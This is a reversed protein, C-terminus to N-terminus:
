LTKAFAEIDAPGNLATGTLEPEIRKVLGSLVKGTGLEFLQTVGQSKMYSVGERWRVRGTVQRVLLDRITAPDSVRSAIVNAVLPVKPPAMTTRTLAEQMADAAPKMLACHFPASVPLLVARTAGM